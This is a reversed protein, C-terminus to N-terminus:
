FGFSPCIMNNYNIDNNPNHIDYVNKVSQHSLKIFRSVNSQYDTICNNSTRVIDLGILMTSTHKYIEDPNMEQVTKQTEIANESLKLYNLNDTNEVRQTEFDRKFRNFVFCGRQNEDCMTILKIYELNNQQLYESLEIYSTYDDTQLFIIRCNPNKQLLLKIYESSHVYNSENILKDGRRIFISDYDGDLLEYKQKQKEIESKMIDNLRYIERIGDIYKQIEFNELITFHGSTMMESNNQSEYELYVREFYDEWGKKYRFLWKSSDINYNHNYKIAFLYHNLTFFFTSYFGGLDNELTSNIIM